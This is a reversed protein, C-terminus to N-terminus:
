GLKKAVIERVKVMDQGFVRIGQSLKETAMADENMLWRFSKECVDLREINANKAEAADLKREVAENMSQLEELLNPSITLLDCGALELIEGINRFSAGMVETKHGFKKYYTYIEKVSTM